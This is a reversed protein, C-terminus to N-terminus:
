KEFYPIIRCRCRPHAPIPMADFASFVKEHLKGCIDCRREDKDAWVQVKNIGADTYRQRAAQTQIHSMETRVVSDARNYAVNFETMLREKLQEPSAGTMVCEILGENLAQQLQETNSWIRDSWSKGDACWIQNIMQQAQSVDMANFHADDKLAFGNYINSYLRAFRNGYLRTQRDGLDYLMNHLENQFVWYRDLKYLDAPTPQLGEQLSAMVANYTDIFGREAAKMTRKYYRSMQEETERISKTTLREQTNLARKQWYDM